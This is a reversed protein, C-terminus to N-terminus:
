AQAEPEPDAQDASTKRLNFGVGGIGIVLSAIGVLLLQSADSTGGIIMAVDPDAPLYKVECRPDTISHSDTHAKFYESQVSFKKSHASKGEPFYTVQLDYSRSRRRKRSEGSTIIGESVLGEKELRQQQLYDKGSLFTVVVGGIIALVFFRM